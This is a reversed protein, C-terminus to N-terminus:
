GKAFVMAWVTRAGEARLATAATALTAGSTSVDDVLVVTKGRIVRSDTVAFAGAVNERRRTNDTMSVQAPTNRTRRLAYCMEVGLQRALEEALLASQNFGRERQKAPHLPIPLLLVSRPMAMGYWNLFKVMESALLPALDRVGDYKYTHVLERVLPHRYPFPAFFRRLGSQEGCHGCVFGDLDRHGCVPCRPSAFALGSRCPACLIEGEAGCGVCSRPFVLDLLWRKADAPRM